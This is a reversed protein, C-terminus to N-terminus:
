RGRPWRARASFFASQGAGVPLGTQTKHKTKDAWVSVKKSNKAGIIVKPIYKKFPLKCSSVFLQLKSVFLQVRCWVVECPAERCWEVVGRYWVVSYLVVCSLVVGCVVVCCRVVECLVVCRWVIGYAVISVVCRWVIGYAVILVVCWWVIGYAVRSKVCVICYWVVNCPYHLNPSVVYESNAYYPQKPQKQGTVDEGM